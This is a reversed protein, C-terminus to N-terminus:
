LSRGPATSRCSFRHDHVHHERGAASLADAARLAQEVESAPREEDAHQVLDERRVQGRRDDHEAGVGLADKRERPPGPDLREVIGVEARLLDQRELEAELREGPLRPAEQDVGDVVTEDLAVVDVRQDGRELRAVLRGPDHPRTVAALPAMGHEIRRRVRLLEEVQRRVVGAARDVPAM